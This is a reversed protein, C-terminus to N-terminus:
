HQYALPKFLPPGLWEMGYKAMVDKMRQNAASSGPAVTLMESGVEDFFKEFGGPFCALILKGESDGINAWVHPIDRPLWMSAGTPMEYEQGGVKFVFRSSLVYYWEDERHHVHLAPGTQPLVALEFASCAGGSDQATLKCPSLKAQQPSAFPFRSEGTKAQTVRNAAEAQAPILHTVSLVGFAYLLTRRDLKQM